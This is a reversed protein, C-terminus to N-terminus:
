KIKEIEVILVTINDEGGRINAENLFIEGCASISNNSIIELMETDSFYNSMGDSCLLFKDKTKVALKYIDPEVNKHFGVSRTIVNKFRFRKAEEKTIHGAKVQENVLSHDETIQWLHNDRMFYARSDGVQAIFAFNERFCLVTTTTGMGTLSDESQARDYIAGSAQKIGLELAQEVPLDKNITLFDNISHISIQSAVEGGAYGGMGDSVIFLLEEENILFADQNQTRKQGMSSLGISNIVM